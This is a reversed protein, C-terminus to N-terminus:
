DDGNTRVEMISPFRVAAARWPSRANEKEKEKKKKRKKKKGKKGIKRKGKEKRHGLRNRNLTQGM